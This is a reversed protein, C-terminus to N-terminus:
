AEIWSTIRRGRAVQESAQAFRLAHFIVSAVTWGAALVLGSDPRRLLLSAALILLNVNRGAAFLRFQSDIRKWAHIRVGGFRRMFMAEIAREAVTGGIIAALVMMATVPALPRGSAALGHEWAWWWLPPVILNLANVVAENRRTGSGACRALMTGVVEALTFAFGSLVGWWYDGNWFLWLALAALLAALATVAAPALRARAAWRALLFAPERWLYLTVADTVAPYAADYAAREIPEPSSPDDSAMAAPM